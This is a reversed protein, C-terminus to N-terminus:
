FFPLKPSPLRNKLQLGERDLALAFGWWVLAAYTYLLRALTTVRTVEHLRSLLIHIDLDTYCEWLACRGAKRFTKRCRIESGVIKHILRLAHKRASSMPLMYIM